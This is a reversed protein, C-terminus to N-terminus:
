LRREYYSTCEASKRQLKGSSIYSSKCEYIISRNTFGIIGGGGGWGNNNSGQIETPYYTNDTRDYKMWYNFEALQAERAALKSGADSSGGSVVWPTFEWEDLCCLCEGYGTVADGGGVLPGENFLGSPDSWVLPSNYGYQYPSHAPFSSWLPDPRLFSGTESQYKRYDLENL